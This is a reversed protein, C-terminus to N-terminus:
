LSIQTKSLIKIREELEKIRNDKENIKNELEKQNNQEFHNQIKLCDSYYSFYSFRHGKECILLVKGGPYAYETKSHNGVYIAGSDSEKVNIGYIKNTVNVGVCEIKPKSNKQNSCEICMEYTCSEPFDDKSKSNHCGM